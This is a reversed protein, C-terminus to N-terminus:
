VEAWMRLLNHYTGTLSVLEPADAGVRGGLQQIALDM